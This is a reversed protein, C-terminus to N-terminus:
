VELLLLRKDQAKQVPQQPAQAVMLQGEYPNRNMMQMQRMYDYKMQEEKRRMMEQEYEYRSVNTLSNSSIAM